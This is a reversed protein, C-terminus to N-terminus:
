FDWPENLLTRPVDPNLTQPEPPNQLNLSLPQPKPTTTATPKLGSFGPLDKM